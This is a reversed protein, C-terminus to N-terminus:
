LGGSPCASSASVDSKLNAVEVKTLITSWRWDGTRAACAMTHPTRHLEGYSAPCTKGASCTKGALHGSGVSGCEWDEGTCDTFGRRLSASPLVPLCLLVFVVRAAMPQVYRRLQSQLQLQNTLSSHQTPRGNCMGSFSGSLADLCNRNQLVAELEYDRLRILHRAVGRDKCEVYRKQSLTAQCRPAVDYLVLWAERRLKAVNPSIKNLCCQAGLLFVM